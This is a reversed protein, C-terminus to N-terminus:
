LKKFKNSGNTKGVKEIQLEKQNNYLKVGLNSPPVDVLDNLAFLTGSKMESIKKKVIEWMEAYTREQLSVDKCYSSVDPYGAKIALAQLKAWENADVTFQIRM